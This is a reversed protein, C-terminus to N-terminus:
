QDAELIGRPAEFHIGKRTSEVQLKHFKGDPKADWALQYRGRATELSQTIAKEVDGGPYIRGGTLGSLLKLTDRALGREAPPLGGEPIEEVSYLSTGSHNLAASFHELFPAYNLCKGDGWKSCDTSCKGALYTGAEGPYEVNKCGYQYHLWNAVGSTIWVLTKPGPIEALRKQLEGLVQYTIGARYGADKADVPRLGNIRQIAQDLLPHIRLTWPAGAPKAPVGTPLPHVTFLESHHTLLYLGVSDGAALPELARILQQSTYERHGPISNMLDWLILTTSAEGNNGKCESLPQPKGEDFLRIEACTLDTVPRGASDLATVNLTVRNAPATPLGARSDRYPMQASAPAASALLVACTWLAANATPGRSLLTM